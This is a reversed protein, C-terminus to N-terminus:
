KGSPESHKGLNKRHIEIEELDPLVEIGDNQKSEVREFELLHKVSIDFTKKYKFDKQQSSVITTRFPESLQYNLISEKKKRIEDRMRYLKRAIKDKVKPDPGIIKLRVPLLAVLNQYEGLKELFADGTSQLSENWESKDSLRSLYEDFIKEDCKDLCGLTYAHLFESNEIHDPM